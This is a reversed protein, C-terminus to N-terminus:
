RSLRTSLRYYAFVLVGTILAMSLAIASSFGPDSSVANYGMMMPTYQSDINNSITRLITPENFLQVTGIISMLVALGIAGAVSPIKISWAIRWEGAGDLRAAEFQDRPIAQLAALIIIMNYGTWSWTAINAISLLLTNQQLFVDPSAGFRELLQVVPSLQPVYLYAWVLAAVVGPVAYPLFYVLQFVKKVRSMLADLVLALALAFLTMLPVQVLGYVLVRGMGTWFADSQAVRVFNELGVFVTESKSLGLGGGSTVSFLSTWVSYVIPVVFTAVFFLVFPLLLLRM